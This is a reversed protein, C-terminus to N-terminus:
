VNAKANHADLEDQLAEIEAELKSVLQDREIVSIAAVKVIPTERSWRDSTKGSTCDIARIQKIISKPEAMRFIKDYVKANAKHIRTKLDVLEDITSMVTDLAEKPNYPPTTGEEVSNYSHVKQIESSLKAVLKNKEKLAKKIKM